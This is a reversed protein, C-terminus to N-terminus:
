QASVTLRMGPPSATTAAACVASAIDDDGHDAAIAEHWRPLLASTMPLEVGHQHAATLAGARGTMGQEVADGDTLMTIVVEAGAAADARTKALRAGAATLRVARAPTRNWVRVEHGARLLSRAIPAGMTGTGLVAVSLTPGSLV